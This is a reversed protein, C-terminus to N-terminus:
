AGGLAAVLTEKVQRLAEEYARADYGVTAGLQVCDERTPPRGSARNVLVGGAREETMCSPRQVNPVRLLPPLDQLDTLTYTVYAALMYLSGHAFNVVRTVGFILSLGSAILFPVMAHALGSLLQVLLISFSM